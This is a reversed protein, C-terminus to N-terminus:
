HSGKQEASGSTVVPKTEEKVLFESGGYVAAGVAIAAIWAYGQVHAGRRADPPFGCARPVVAGM